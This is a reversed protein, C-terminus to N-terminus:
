NANLKIGKQDAVIELKEKLVSWKQIHYELDQDLLLLVKDRLLKLVDTTMTSFKPRGEVRLLSRFEAYTLGKSNFRIDVNPNLLLREKIVDKKNRFQGDSNYETLDKKEQETLWIGLSLIFKDSILRRNFAPLSDLCASLLDDITITKYCDNLGNFIETVFDKNTLGNTQKHASIYDLLDKNTRLGEINYDYLIHRLLLETNACDWMRRVQDRKRQVGPHYPDKNNLMELVHLYAHQIQEPNLDMMRVENGNSMKWVWRNIDNEKDGFAQVLKDAFDSM